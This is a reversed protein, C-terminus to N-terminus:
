DSPNDYIHPSAEAEKPIQIDRMEGFAAIKGDEVLIVGNSVLHNHMVLEANIVALM